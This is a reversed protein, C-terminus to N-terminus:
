KDGKYTTLWDSFPGMMPTIKIVNRLANKDQTAVGHTAKFASDMYSLAPAESIVNDAIEKAFPIGTMGLANGTATPRNGYLPLVFDIPRELVGIVGSGYIGRMFKQWDNLYADKREKAEDDAFATKVSDKLAQAFMSIAILSALTALANVRAIPMKEKGGLNNYMIPLLNATATSIYGQFQTFLRYRPDSYFAPRNGVAPMAIAMDVFRFKANDLNALYVPNDLVKVAKEHPVGANINNRYAKQANILIEPQVGLNGLQEIAEAYYRNSAEGNTPEHTMAQNMWHHVTDDAMALRAYRQINTLGTLGSAKFFVGLGGAQRPSVEAGQRAAPAQSDLLYGGQRLMERHTYDKMPIKGRTLVTLGENMTAIMEPMASKALIFATKMPAPNNQFVVFGAEVLSSIAALPLATLATLFGLNNITTRYFKSDIRHYDGSLQDMYDQLKSAIDIKEDATIENNLVALDLINALKDGDQGLYKDHTSRNAHRSSNNVINNFVNNDLFESAGEMQAFTNEISEVFDPNLYNDLASQLTRSDPDILDLPTAYQDNQLFLTVARDAEVQTIGLSKMLIAKMKAQNKYIKHRSVTKTLVTDTSEPNGNIENNTDFVDQLFQLETSNLDLNSASLLESVQVKDSDRAKKFISEIRARNNYIKESFAKTGRFGAKSSTLLGDFSKKGTLSAVKSRRQDEFGLGGRANNVGLISGLMSMYETGQFKDLTDMLQGRILGPVSGLAKNIRGVPEGEKQANGQERLKQGRTADGPDAPTNAAVTAAKPTTAIIVRDVDVVEGPFSREDMERTKVANTEKNKAKEYGARIQSNSLDGAVASTVSMTKGLMGGAFGANMIRNLMEEPTINNNEAQIALYEQMAETIGESSMGKLGEVGIRGSKVLMSATGDLIAKIEKATRTSTNVMADRLAPGVVKASQGTAEVIKNVAIKRGEKTTLGSALAKNATFAGGLKVGVVDLATMGIAYVLARGKDKNEQADYNTGTYISIPAALSLGYTAPAALVAAIGVSMIPVSAMLNSFTYNTLESIGDLTFDGHEDFAEMDRMYPAAAMERKVADAHGYGWNESSTVGFSEEVMGIATAAGLLGNDVGSGFAQGLQWDKTENMLTRDKSRISVGAYLDPASAYIAESAALPKMRLSGQKVHNNHRDVLTDWETSKGERKRRHRELDGFASTMIDDNNAYKSLYGAGSSLLFKSYSTGEPNVRDGLERGFYGQEGTLETETFGEERIAKEGLLTATEGGVEGYTEQFDDSLTHAVEPAGLGSFRIITGDETVATDQDILRLDKGEEESDITIGEGSSIAIGQEQMLKDLESLEKM